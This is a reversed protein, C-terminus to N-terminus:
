NVKEPKPYVNFDEDGTLRYLEQMYYEFGYFSVVYRETFGFERPEYELIVSDEAYPYIRINATLKVSIYIYESKSVEGFYVKETYALPVLFDPHLSTEASALYKGDKKYTVSVPGAAYIRSQFSDTLVSVYVISVALLTALVGAIFSVTVHLKNIKM